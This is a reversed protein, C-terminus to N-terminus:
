SLLFLLSHKLSRLSGGGMREEAEDGAQGLSWPCRQRPPPAHCWSGCVGTGRHGKQMVNCAALCVVRWMGEHLLPSPPSCSGCMAASCALGLGQIARPRFNCASTAAAGEAGREGEAGGRNCFVDERVVGPGLSSRAVLDWM